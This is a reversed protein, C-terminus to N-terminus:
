NKIKNVTAFVIRDNWDTANEYLLFIASKKSASLVRDQTYFGISEVTVKYQGQCPASLYFEGNRDSSAMTPVPTNLRVLAGAMSEQTTADIVKGKIMCQASSQQIAWGTLFLFLAPRLIM